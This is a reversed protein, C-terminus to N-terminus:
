HLLNFPKRFTKVDVTGVPLIFDIGADGHLRETKDLELDFQRGFEEEGAIGVLDHNKSLIRQSPCGKHLTTRQNAIKRQEKEDNM